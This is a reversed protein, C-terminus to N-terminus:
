RVRTSGADAAIIIHRASYICLYLSCCCSWGLLLAEVMRRGRSLDHLDCPEWGTVGDILPVYLDQGSLELYDLPSGHVHHAPVM